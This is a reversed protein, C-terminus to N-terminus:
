LTQTSVDAHLVHKKEMPATWECIINLWHQSLPSGEANSVEQVEQCIFLLIIFNVPYQCYREQKYIGHPITVLYLSIVAGNQLGWFGSYFVQGWWQFCLLWWGPVLSSWSCGDALWANSGQWGWMLALHSLVVPEQQRPPDTGPWLPCSCMWVQLWTHSHLLISSTHVVAVFNKHINLSDSFLPKNTCLLKPKTSQWLKM